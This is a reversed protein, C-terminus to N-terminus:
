SNEHIKMFKWGGSRSFKDFHQAGPFFRQRSETQAWSTSVKEAISKHHFKLKLQFTESRGENGNIQNGGSRRFNNWFTWCFIEPVFTKVHESFWSRDYERFDDAFESSVRSRRPRLVFTPLFNSACCFINFANENMTQFDESVSIHLNTLQIEFSSPYCKWIREHITYTSSLAKSIMSSDNEM